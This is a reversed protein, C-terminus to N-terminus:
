TKKSIELLSVHRVIQQINLFEHGNEETIFRVPIGDRSILVRMTVEELYLLKLKLTSLASLIILKNKLLFQAVEINNSFGM